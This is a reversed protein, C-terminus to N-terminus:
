VIINAAFFYNGVTFIKCEGLTNKKFLKLCGSHVRRILQDYNKLLLFTGKTSKYDIINWNSKNTDYELHFHERSVGYGDPFSYDVDIGGGGSGFKHILKKEQPNFTKTTIIIIQDKFLGEECKLRIDSDPEYSGYLRTAPDQNKSERNDDETIVDEVHYTFRKALNILQGKLCKYKKQHDLKICCYSYRLPASAKSAKSADVIYIGDNSNIIICSLLEVSFDDPPFVIDANPHRGFLLLGDNRCRDKNYGLGNCEFVDGAMTIRNKGKYSSNFNSLTITYKLPSGTPFINNGKINELIKATKVYFKYNEYSGFFLSLFEELRDFSYNNQNRGCLISEALNKSFENFPIQYSDFLSQFYPEADGKFIYNITFVVKKLYLALFKPLLSDLTCFNGLQNKAENYLSPAIDHPISLVATLSSLVKQEILSLDQDIHIRFYTNKVIKYMFAQCDNLTEQIWTANIMTDSIRSVMNALSQMRMSIDENFIDQDILKKIERQLAKCHTEM